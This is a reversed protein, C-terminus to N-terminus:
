TDVGKPEIAVNVVMGRDKDFEIRTGYPFCM